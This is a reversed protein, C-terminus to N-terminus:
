FDTKVFMMNREQDDFGNLTFAAQTEYGTMYDNLLLYFLQVRPFPVRSDLTTFHKSSAIKTRHPMSQKM